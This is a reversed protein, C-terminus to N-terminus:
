PPTGVTIEEIAGEVTEVTTSTGAIVVVIDVVVVVVATDGFEKAGAALPGVVIRGAVNEVGPKVTVGMPARELEAAAGKLPTRLEEVLAVATEQSVGTAASGTSTPVAAATATVAAPM